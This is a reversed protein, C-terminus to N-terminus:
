LGDKGGKVLDPRIFRLKDRIRRVISPDETSLVFRIAGSVSYVGMGHADRTDMLKIIKRLTARDDIGTGKPRGRRRAAVIPVQINM